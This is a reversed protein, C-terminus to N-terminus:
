SRVSHLVTSSRFLSISSDPCDSKVTSVPIRRNERSTRSSSSCPHALTEGETARIECGSLSFHTDLGNPAVFALVVADADLTAQASQWPSGEPGVRFSLLGQLRLAPGGDQQAPHGASAYM